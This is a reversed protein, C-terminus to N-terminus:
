PEGGKTARSGRRLRFLPITVLPNRGVDLRRFVGQGKFITLVALRADPPLPLGGKAPLQRATSVPDPAVGRPPLSAAGAERPNPRGYHSHRVSRSHAAELALFPPPSRSM